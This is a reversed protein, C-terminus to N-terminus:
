PRLKRLLELTIFLTKRLNEKQIPAKSTACGQTLHPQAWLTSLPHPERHCCPMIRLCSMPATIPAALPAQCGWAENAPLSWLHNMPM